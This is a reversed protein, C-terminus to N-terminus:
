TYSGFVLVVPKKGILNSLTVKTKGSADSLTFDPARTGVKPMTDLDAMGAEIEVAIDHNKGRLVTIFNRKPDPTNKKGGALNARMRRGVDGPLTAYLKKIFDDGNRIMEDNVAIIFDGAQFGLRAADSGKLVSKISLVPEGEDRMEVFWIGHFGGQRKKSPRSTTRSPTRIQAVGDVLPFAVALLIPLFRM